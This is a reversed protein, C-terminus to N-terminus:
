DPIEQIVMFIKGYDEHNDKLLLPNIYCDIAEGTSDHYNRLHGYGNRLKRAYKKDKWRVGGPLFEVGISLGQWKLVRDIISGFNLFTITPQWDFDDESFEPEKEGQPILKYTIQEDTIKFIYRKTFSNSVKDEFIGVIDGDDDLEVRPIATIGDQYQTELLAKLELLQSARESVSRSRNSAVAVSDYDVQNGIGLNSSVPAFDSADGGFREVRM